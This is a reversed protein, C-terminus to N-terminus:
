LGAQFMRVGDALMQVSMFILILGSLRKAAEMGRAGLIRTIGPSALLFASSALWALSIATLVVPSSHQKSYVMVAALLSPGAILPVAIPVIFPETTELPPEATPPFVLRVSIIFLIVGGAVRLTSAGIDLLSLMLEGIFHFLIVIGLAILVERFLIARQREPPYSSLMALCPAANGIPDMIFFLPIAIEAVQRVGPLPM